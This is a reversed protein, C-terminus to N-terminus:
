LEFPAFGEFSPRAAAAALTWGPPVLRHVHVLADALHSRTLEHLVRVDDATTPVDSELDLMRPESRTSDTM